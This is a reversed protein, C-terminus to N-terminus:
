DKGADYKIKYFTTIMMDVGSNGLSQENLVSDHALIGQVRVEFVHGGMSKQYAFSHHDELAFEFKFNKCFSKVVAKQGPQMIKGYVKKM